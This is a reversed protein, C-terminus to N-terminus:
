NNDGVNLKIGVTKRGEYEPLHAAIRVRFILNKRRVGDSRSEDSLLVQSLVSAGEVPRFGHLTKFVGDILDYFGFGNGRNNRAGTSTRKLNMDAVLVSVTAVGIQGGSGVDSWEIRSCGVLACPYKVQARGESADLQLRNEDCYKLQPLEEELRNLVAILIEKIM